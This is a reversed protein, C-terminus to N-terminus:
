PATSASSATIASAADSSIEGDDAPATMGQVQSESTLWAVSAARAEDTAAENLVENEATTQAIQKAQYDLYFAWSLVLALAVGIAIWKIRKRKASIPQSPQIDDADLANDAHNPQENQKDMTNVGFEARYGQLSVAM